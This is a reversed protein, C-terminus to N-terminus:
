DRGRGVWRWRIVALALLVGALDVILDRLDPTRGPVFAQHLEDIVAYLTAAFFAAALTRAGSWATANRWALWLLVALVAYELFHAAWGLSEQLWDDATLTLDSQASLAWILAMWGLPPLWWLWARRRSAGSRPAPQQSM